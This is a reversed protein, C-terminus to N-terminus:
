DRESIAEGVREKKAIERTTQLKLRSQKLGTQSQEQQRGEGVSRRDRKHKLEHNM